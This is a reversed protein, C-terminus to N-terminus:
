KFSVVVLACAEANSGVNRATVNINTGDWLNGISAVISHTNDDYTGGAVASSPSQGLGHGVLWPGYATGAALTGVDFHNSAHPTHAGSQNWYHDGWYGHTHGSASYNAGVWDVRAASNGDVPSGIQLPALAGSDGQWDKLFRVGYQGGYNFSAMAAVAVGPSHLVLGQPTDIQLKSTMTGGAGSKQFFRAANILYTDGSNTVGWLYTSINGDDRWNFHQGDVTDANAVAPHTHSTVSYETHTHPPAGEPMDPIEKVSHTHVGPAAQLPGRGLTHHPSDHDLDTDTPKGEVPGKDGSFTYRNDAM